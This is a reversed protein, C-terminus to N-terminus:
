VASELDDFALSDDEVYGGYIEDYTEHVEDALSVEQREEYQKIWRKRQGATSGGWIGFEERTRIAFDLCEMQVPCANCIRRARAVEDVTLNPHHRAKNARDESGYFTAQDMGRCLGYQQWDPFSNANWFDVASSIAASSHDDGTFTQLPQDTEVEYTDLTRRQRARITFESM